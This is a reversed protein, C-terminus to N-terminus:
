DILLKIDDEVNSITGIGFNEVLLKTVNPSLFAPLTPGLHINKVGLSLLALLVIVAKQEYWAINYSIPLDNISELGFAEKLKLAIVVLSYSDNCQGADLVRPIGNIEGLNLKIYKFKACGSTLIVASKPLSKAFDTYYEREKHRGDCGSMVVFSTIAKSNIADVIKDALSLVQNHAFGGIITGEEIQTPAICRKAHEIIVSFDKKGDKIPIYKVGEYGVNGTSYVRNSYTPRPPVLCNTTMLIPGNFTEFETTQKYWANGYNGVLNDYKKLEPYYHAPLMESHTYVDIGTGKTQELLEKIDHLDHGSILIGPNKKVGINVKTAEPHGFSTTNAEDLLAMGKVGYTGLKLTIKVYDNLTLEQDVCSVLACHMYNFVERNKFGLKEAHSLYAALGRLGNLILARIARIDEDETSLIGVNIAKKLMQNRSELVFNVVDCNCLEEGLSTIQHKLEDRLKITEKIAGEFVVEDFNANTITKFLGETVFLDYPDTNMNLDNAKLVVKSLGTLAYAFTDMLASLEPTKGCVGFVTCGVNKSAEQCQNCFMDM